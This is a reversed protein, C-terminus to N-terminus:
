RKPIKERIKTTQTTKKKRQDTDVTAQTEPNDMENTM